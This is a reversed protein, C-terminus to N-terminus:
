SNIEEDSSEKRYYQAVKEQRAADLAKTIEKQAAIEKEIKFTAFAAFITIAVSIGSQIWAQAGACSLFVVGGFLAIVSYVKFLDDLKRINKSTIENVLMEKGQSYFSVAQGVAKTAGYFDRNDERAVGGVPCTKVTQIRNTGHLNGFWAKGRLM